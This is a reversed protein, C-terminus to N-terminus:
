VSKGVAKWFAWHNAREICISLPLVIYVYGIGNPTQCGAPTQPLHRTGFTVLIRDTAPVYNVRVFVGSSFEEGPAVQVTQIFRFFSPQGTPQVPQAPTPPSPLAPPPPPPFTPPPAPTPTPAACSALLVVALLVGLVQQLFRPSNM